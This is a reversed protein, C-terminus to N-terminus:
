DEGSLNDLWSADAEVLDSHEILRALRLWAKAIILLILRQQPHAARKAFRLCDAAHFRYETARELGM